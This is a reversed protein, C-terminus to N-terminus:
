DLTCRIRYHNYTWGISSHLLSTRCKARMANTLKCPNPWLMDKDALSWRRISEIESWHAESYLTVTAFLRNCLIFRMWFLYACLTHEWIENNYILCHFTCSVNHNDFSIFFSNFINACIDFAADIEIIYIDAYLIWIFILNMDPLRNWASLYNDKTNGTILNQCFIILIAVTNRCLQNSKYIM